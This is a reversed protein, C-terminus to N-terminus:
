SQVAATIEYFAASLKHMEANFFEASRADGLVAANRRSRNCEIVDIALALQAKRLTEQSISITKKNSSTVKDM